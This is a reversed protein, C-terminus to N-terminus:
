RRGSRGDDVGSSPSDHSVMWASISRTMMGPRVWQCLGLNMAKKGQLEDKSAMIPSMYLPAKLAAANLQIQEGAMVSSSVTTMSQTALSMARGFSNKLSPSPPPIMWPVALSTTNVARTAARSRRMRRLSPSIGSPSSRMSLAASM